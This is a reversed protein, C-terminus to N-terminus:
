KKARNDGKDLLDSIEGKLSPSIHFEPIGGSLSRTTITGIRYFGDKDRIEFIHVEGGPTVPFKGNFTWVKRESDYESKLPDFLGKYKAYRKSNLILKAVETVQAETLKTEAHANVALLM